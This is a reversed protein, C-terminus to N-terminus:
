QDVTWVNFLSLSTGKRGSQSYAKVRGTTVWDDRGRLDALLLNFNMHDVSSSMTYWSSNFLENAVATESLLVMLCLLMFQRIKGFRVITQEKNGNM